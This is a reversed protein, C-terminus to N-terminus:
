GCFTEFADAKNDASGVGTSEAGPNETWLTTPPQTAQDYVLVTNISYNQWSSAANGFGYDTLYQWLGAAGCDHFSLKRGGYNATEFFCYWGSTCVGAATGAAPITLVAGNGFTITGPATQRAGPHEAVVQDVQRQVDQTNSTSAQAPAALMAATAMAATATLTVARPLNPAKM